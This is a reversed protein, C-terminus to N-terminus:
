GARAAAAAATIGAPGGGLVLVDFEGFVPTQRSPETLTRPPSQPLTPMPAKRECPGPLLTAPTPRNDRGRAPTGPEPKDECAVIVWGM